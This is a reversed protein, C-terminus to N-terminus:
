RFTRSFRKGMQVLTEYPCTPDLEDIDHIHQLAEPHVLPAPPKRKKSNEKRRDFISM